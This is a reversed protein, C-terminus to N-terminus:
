CKQRFLLKMYYLIYIVNPIQNYINIDRIKAFNLLILNRVFM